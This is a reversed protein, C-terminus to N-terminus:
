SKQTEKQTPLTCLYNGKDLKLLSVDDVTQAPPIKINPFDNKSIHQM